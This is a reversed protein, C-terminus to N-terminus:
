PASKKFVAVVTHGTLHPARYKIWWKAILEYVAKNFVKGLFGFRKFQDGFYVQYYWRYHYPQLIDTHIKVVELPFHDVLKTFVAPTWLGMHHPPMNSYAYKDDKLLSDNNPVGFIIYGGPQVSQIAENIFSKVDAIHELVQFSCAVNADTIEKFAVGRKTAKGRAETNLETGYPIIAIKEKLQILFDGNACGQELVIDGPKVYSAAIDHEHKWPIYYLPEKSVHQYFADDGALTYPYYFQYGTDNCQYLAIENQNNFLPRVDYSGYHEIIPAAPITRVLTTSGGTLPSLM